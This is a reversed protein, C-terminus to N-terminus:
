ELSMLSLYRPHLHTGDLMYQSRLVKDTTPIEKSITGTGDGSADANNNDEILQEFFDMWTAGAVKMVAQQYVENYAMVIARTENLVPVVPHIYVNFRKKKQMTSKIAEEVFLKVTHKMADKINAYKDMEVAKLMGERCDIEGFIVVVDSGDPITNVVNIFNAKPYFKSQKRLHWQKAGTALKPVVLRPILDGTTKDKKATSNAAKGSAATTSSTTGSPPTRIISWAPSLSHSDGIVYLPNSLAQQVVSPCQSSFQGDAHQQQGLMWRIFAYQEDSEAPSSSSASSIVHAIALYYAQENRVSSLHLPEESKARLPELLQFIPPLAWLKGQLYLLKVAGMALAIWDLENTTYKTTGATAASSSSVMEAGQWLHKVICCDRGKDWEVNFSTDVDSDDRTMPQCDVAKELIALMQTSFVTVDSSSSSGGGTGNLASPSNRNNQFFKILIKLGATYNASIEEIHMANLAYNACVPNLKLASEYLHLASKLASYDKAVTAVFAFAAASSTSAPVQKYLEALGQETSLLDALMTKVRKNNQDLTVAKLLARMPEEVKRHSTAFYSYAVLIHINSEAQPNSMTQNIVDAGGMPNGLEFVSEAEIASLELRKNVIDPMKISVSAAKLALAGRAVELADEFNTAKLHARALLLNLDLSKSHTRWLKQCTEVAKEYRETAYYVEALLLLAGEERDNLTLMEECAQRVERYRKAKMYQQLKGVIKTSESKSLVGAASTSSPADQKTATPAAATASAAIPSVSASPPVSKPNPSNDICVFIDEKDVLHDILRRKSSEIHLRKGNSKQLYLASADIATISGSGSLSTSINANIHALFNSTIEGVTSEPTILQVKTIYVDGTEHHLYIKISTM